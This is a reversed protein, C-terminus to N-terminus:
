LLNTTVASSVYCRQFYIGFQKNTSKVFPDRGVLTTTYEVRYPQDLSENVDFFYQPYPPFQQFAKLEVQKYKIGMKITHNEWGFYTLDDQFAWGEQGKDQFNNSGGINLVALRLNAPNGPDVITYRYGPGRTVPM